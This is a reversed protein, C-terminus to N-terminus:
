CANRRGRARRIQMIDCWRDRESIWLHNGTELNENIVHRFWRGPICHFKTEMCSLIPNLKSIEIKDLTYKHQAFNALIIETLDNHLPPSYGILQRTPCLVGYNKIEDTLFM